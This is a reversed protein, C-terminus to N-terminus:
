QWFIGTLVIFLIGKALETYGTTSLKEERLWLATAINELLPV